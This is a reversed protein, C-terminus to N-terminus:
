AALEAAALSGSRAPQSSVKKKKFRVEVLIGLICTRQDANFFVIEEGVFENEYIYTCPPARPAFIVWFDLLFKSLLCYSIKCM